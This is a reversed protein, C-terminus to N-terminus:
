SWIMATRATPSSRRAGPAARTDPRHARRSPPGTIGLKQAIWVLQDREAQVNLEHGAPYWRLDTGKPAAGAVPPDLARNPVVTDRRGNQLLITGPRGRAIWLLPDIPTLTTRVADKLSPPAAKVYDSVPVAGASMLVLARLRPEAGALVAGSRGGSSWGILGIRDPDVQPLKRLVDIGRRAAVVDAVALRREQQLLQSRAPAPRPPPATSSPATITMGVAGRAAVWGAAPLFDTRDGGTGHMILVAPVNRKTAPPLVLYGEVRGSGPVNYSIDRVRLPGQRGALGADKYGLAGPPDDFPSGAISTTTTPTTPTPTATTTPTTVTPTPAATTTEPASKSDGCGALLAVLVAILAIRPVRGIIAVVAASPSSDACMRCSVDSVRAIEVVLTCTPPRPPVRRSAHEEVALLAPALPRLRAAPPPRRRPQLDADHLALQPRAAGPDHAPRRRGRAHPDRVRAAAPAPPPRAPAAHEHRAAARHASLFLANEAGRALQPRADRLYRAVQHAAEEGLPVVRDKGGKGHVHVLEQEFDVDGLDLGSRRPAACAARTSSSSSRAIACRRAPRRRRARGADGRDGCSAARRAAPAPPAARVVRRPRPRRGALPAPVRAGGGAQPRDHGARAQAAAGPRARGRVDALVRVDVDDLGKGQRELWAAFEEVDGRYARRTAESLAPSALFREIAPRLEMRSREAAGHREEYQWTERLVRAWNGHAIKALAEDDYGRAALGDLLRPLGAADRLASPVLCGDFDSGLAVHDIGIRGAVHDVHDLIPGLGIEADYRGTTMTADFVVGLLGGSAGIADLQADTVNRTCPCVAWAGSHSAVLPADSIAAVDFFGAREPACTSSCAWSTARRVLRRGAATLGPGTDPSAPFGFPVGEGFANPRSWM